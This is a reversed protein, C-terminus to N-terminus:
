PQQRGRRHDGTGEATVPADPRTPAAGPGASTRPLPRRKDEGAGLVPKDASPLEQRSSNSKVDDGSLPFLLM